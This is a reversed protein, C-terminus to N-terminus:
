ENLDRQYHLVLINCKPDCKPDGNIWQYYKGQLIIKFFYVHMLYIIFVSVSNVWITVFDLNYYFIFIM